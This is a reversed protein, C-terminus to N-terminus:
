TTVRQPTARHRQPSAPRNVVSIVTPVVHRLYSPLRVFSQGSTRFAYTIPVEAYRMGKGLLDLTLVQAYNYDHAVEAVAAAEWSLARYGSQGDTIRTRAIARLAATLVRNGIERHVLMRRDHRLFRSGVVYDAHGRLVPAVLDALEEPAYEGDADCFAVAASNHAVADALGARVGAGLGRHRPFRIVQAGAAGAVAATDDSSADDIVVRRVPHGHIRTPCRELVAGVRPAENRAPM